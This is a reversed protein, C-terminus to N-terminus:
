PAAEEGALNSVNDSAAAPAVIRPVRLIPTDRPTYPDPYFYSAGYSAYRGFTGGGAPLLIQAYSPGGDRPIGGTFQNTIAIDFEMGFIGDAGASIVLPTLGGNPQFPYMPPTPSSNLPDFGWDASTPDFPDSGGPASRTTPVVLTRSALDDPQLRAPFGAPWRVFRIPVGFGDIIESFGDNDVDGIENDNFLAAAPEGNVSSLSIIAYLLEENAFTLASGPQPTEFSALPTALSTFQGFGFYERLSKTIAPVEAYNIIFSGQPVGVANENLGLTINIPAAVLDSPRDPMEMRMLDRIAILRVRALEEASVPRTGDDRMTSAILPLELPMPM